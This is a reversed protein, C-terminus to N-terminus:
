ADDDSDFYLHRSILKIYESWGQETKEKIRAIAGMKSDIEDAYHLIFAEPTQPVIPAGFELEGHHSLILHRLKMLIKPPFDEIAEARSAILHDAWNIHGVLRGEDSYDIFAGISYQSMKGMDHFLGGFILQDRSLYDYRHAMDLCIETVNLSHEALGGVYAHHWLKGAAARTYGDLFKEDNWFSDALQRIFGNEIRETMAIVRSTLEDQSFVSAPLLEALDYEDERAKRLKLVKLQPRNRYESVEGKVKVIDGTELDTIASTDPDWWIGAIRGSNDGFELTLYHKENFEKVEKKRVVAFTTVTEYPVFDIIKPTNEQM